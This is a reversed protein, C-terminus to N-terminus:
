WDIINVSTNKLSITTVIFITIFIISIVNVLKKSWQSNILCQASSKEYTLAELRHVGQDSM